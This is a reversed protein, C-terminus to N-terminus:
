AARPASLGVFTTAVFVAFPGALLTTVEVSDVGFLPWGMMWLGVITSANVVVGVVSYRRARGAVRPNTRTAAMTAIAPVCVVAATFVAKGLYLVAVVLLVTLITAYVSILVASGIAERIVATRVHSM